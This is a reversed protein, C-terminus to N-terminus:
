KYDALRVVFKWAMNDDIILFTSTNKGAYYNIPMHVSNYVDLLEDFDNVESVKIGSLSPAAKLEVIISDYSSLLKKVNLKYETSAEKIRGVYHSAFGTLFSAAVLILGLIRCAMIVSDSFKPTSALVKESNKADTDVTVELAKETLPVSIDIESKLPIKEKVLESELTGNVALYIRLKGIASLNYQRKFDRLINNYKDYSVKIDRSFSIQKTKDVSQEESEFLKYDRSWYSVSNKSKTENASITAIISYSYKGSVPYSFETNYKYNIDFYNILNSIYKKGAPLTDTEFYNNEKLRVKYDVANHSEQKLDAGNYPNFGLVCLFVGFVASTFVLIIMLIRKSLNYHIQEAM